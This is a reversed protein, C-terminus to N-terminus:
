EEDPFIGRLINQLLPPLQSSQFEIEGHLFDPLIEQSKLPQYKLIEMGEATEENQGDANNGDASVTSIRFKTEFKTEPNKVTCDCDLAKHKDESVTFNSFTAGTFSKYIRIVAGQEATTSKLEEVQKQLEQIQIKQEDVRSIEDKLKKNDHELEQNYARMLKEREESERRYAYMLAEAKTVREAQLAKFLNEWDTQGDDRVEDSCSSNCMKRKKSSSAAHNKPANEKSVSSCCLQEADDTM